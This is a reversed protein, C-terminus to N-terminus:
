SVASKHKRYLARFQHYTLGLLKAAAGQHFKARKLAYLLANREFELLAEPLSQGDRLRPSSVPLKRSAQKNLGSDEGTVTEDSRKCPMQNEEELFSFPNFDVHQVAGNRARYVAREVVNKLERVNGPWAYDELDAIVEDSFEPAQTQGLEMAMRAAFHHTLLMIDGERERLPPLRLVEFSLRDLLDAKFKGQQVLAPLNANTAGIIRVDVRISHSGGVREFAGYEVVRLIKEQVQMPILGIEDLFLTGAHAAEFRGRRLKAAGTFSGAEHGFLESELVSSSLAACNLAVLPGQWRTSLFHLRSAVLEKGTGREGIILVPREVKAAHSVREQFDVFATSQGLADPLKGVMSDAEWDSQRTM